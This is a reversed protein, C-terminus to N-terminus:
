GKGIVELMRKVKVKYNVYNQLINYKTDHMYTYLM